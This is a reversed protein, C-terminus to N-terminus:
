DVGFDYIGWCKNWKTIQEEGNKKTMNEQPCLPLKNPNIKFEIEEAWVKGVGVTFIIVTAAILNKLLNKTMTTM